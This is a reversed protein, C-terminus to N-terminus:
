PQPGVHEDFDREVAEERDIQDLQRMLVKRQWEQLEICSEVMALFLENTPVVYIPETFAQTSTQATIADHLDAKAQELTKPRRYIM